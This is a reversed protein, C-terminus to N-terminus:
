LGWSEIRCVKLTRTPLGWTIHYELSKYNICKWHLMFHEIKWYNLFIIIRQYFLYTKSHCCITNELWPIRFCLPGVMQVKFCFKLSKIFIIFVKARLIQYSKFHAFGGMPSKNCLAGLWSIHTTQGPKLAPIHVM